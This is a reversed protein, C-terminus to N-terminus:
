ALAQELRTPDGSLTLASVAAARRATKVGRPLPHYSLRLKETLPKM